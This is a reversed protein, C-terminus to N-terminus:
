QYQIYLPVPHLRLLDAPSMLPDGNKTDNHYFLKFGPYQVPERVVYDRYSDRKLWPPGWGDMHMVVQVNPDLRIRDANTVMRQTFRHVVLVKPPLNHERVLKSLHDIMYNIDAADMTGIRSGPREGGKMYFEPDVGVQVDTNKVIWDFRPLIRRIDDTGVQIDVIFIGGLERSWDHVKQVDADRMISRYHGTTGPEGQAVVAVMHLCPTVPTGPDARRWEDIQRRLRQLMEDKPFEGLAGMRTSNPNGYYCVIRNDPLVAGPLPAPGKVPWGMSAAFDPDEGARNRGSGATQAPSAVAGGESEADSVAEVAIDAMFGSGAAPVDTGPENVSGVAATDMALTSAALERESSRAQFFALSGLVVVGAIAVIVIRGPPPMRM